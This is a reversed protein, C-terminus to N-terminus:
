VVGLEIVCFLPAQWRRPRAAIQPTEFSDSSLLTSSSSSLSTVRIRLQAAAARGFNLPNLDMVAPNTDAADAETNRLTM